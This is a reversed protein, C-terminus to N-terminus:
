RASKAPAKARASRSAWPARVKLVDPPFLPGGVGTVVEYPRPKLDGTWTAAPFGSGDLTIMTTSPDVEERDLQGEIREVWNASPAVAGRAFLARTADRPLRFLGMDNVAYVFVDGPPPLAVELTRLPAAFLVFVVASRGPVKERSLGVTAGRRLRFTGSFGFDEKLLERVGAEVRERLPDAPDLTSILKMPRADGPEFQAVYGSISAVDDASAVPALLALTLFAIRALNRM